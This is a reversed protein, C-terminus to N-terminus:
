QKCVIRRRKKVYWFIIQIVAMHSHIPVIMFKNIGSQALMVEIEQLDEKNWTFNLGIMVYICTCHIPAKRFKNINSQGLMMEIEQLDEKNWTINLVIMLYIGTWDTILLFFLFDM